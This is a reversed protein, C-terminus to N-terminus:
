ISRLDAPDIAYTTGCYDCGIELVEDAEVLGRLDDDGLSNLGDVFRDASCNCGSKFLEEGLTRSKIPGYLEDAVSQLEGKAEEFLETVPPLQELRATMLALTAEDAREAAPMLQVVYGGAFTLRDGEFRHGLAVVSNIQESHSLYGTIADALTQEEDTEVVGQHIKGDFLTRHISLLTGAGTGLVNVGHPRLLGRTIGDPHSDIVLSQAAKNQLVVQLRNDPSMTLRLLIAATTADVVLDRHDQDPKQAELIGTATATSRAILIRFEGEDCITRLAIDETGAPAM